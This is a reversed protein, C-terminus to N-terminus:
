EILTKIWSQQNKIKDLWVACFEPTCTKQFSMNYDDYRANINFATVTVFFLKQEENLSLNCKGALRLLNHTFPPYENNQKVYLAKLLKEIMLHGLFMSWSLRKNEYLTIMTAYDEDSSEIWFQIIKNTDFDTNEM